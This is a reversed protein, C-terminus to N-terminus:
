AVVEVIDLADAAGDQVHGHVPEGHAEVRLAAGEDDLAVDGLVGLEGHEEGHERGKPHELAVGGELGLAGLDLGLAEGHAEEGVGHALDRVDEEWLGVQDGHTFVLEGMDLHGPSIARRKM